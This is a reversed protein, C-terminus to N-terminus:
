DVNLDLMQGFGEAITLKPKREKPSLPQDFNCNPITELLTRRLVNVQEGKHKSAVWSVAGEISSEAAEKLTARTVLSLLGADLPYHHIAALAFELARRALPTPCNLELRRLDAEVQGTDFLFSQPLSLHAFVSRGWATEIFQDQADAWVARTVEDVLDRGLGPRCVAGIVRRWRHTQPLSHHLDDRM